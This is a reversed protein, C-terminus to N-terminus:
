KVQINKPIFRDISFLVLDYHVMTEATWFVGFILLIASTRIGGALRLAVAALGYSWWSEISTFTIAIDQLRLVNRTLKQLTERQLRLTRENATVQRLDQEMFANVSRQAEELLGMRVSVNKLRALMDERLRLIKWANVLNNRAWDQLRNLNCLTLSHAYFLALVASRNGGVIKRLNRCSPPDSRCRIPTENFHGTMLDNYMKLSALYPDAFSSWVCKRGVGSGFGEARSHATLCLFVVVSASLVVKM